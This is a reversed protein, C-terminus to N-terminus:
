KQTTRQPYRQCNQSIFKYDSNFQFIKIRRGFNLMNQTIKILNKKVNLTEPTYRNRAELRKKASVVKKTNIDSEEFLITRTLNSEELIDEDLIVLKGIGAAALLMACTSGIGGTGILGVTKNSLIRQYDEPKINFLNFYLQHRHYRGEPFEPLVLKLKVLDNVVNKVEELISTSYELKLRQLLEEITHPTSLIEIIKELYIPPNQIVFAIPSTLGINIISKNKDYRISLAQNIRLKESSM